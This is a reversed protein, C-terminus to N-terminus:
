LATCALCTSAQHVEETSVSVYESTPETWTTSFLAQFFACRAALVCRCCAYLRTVLFHGPATTQASFSLAYKHVQLLTAEQESLGKLALTTDSSTCTMQQCQEYLTRATLLVVQPTPGHESVDLCDDDSAGGLHQVHDASISVQVLRILRHFDPAAILEQILIDSVDGM